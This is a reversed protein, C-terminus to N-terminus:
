SYAISDLSCFFFFHTLSFFSLSFFFPGGGWGQVERKSVDCMQLALVSLTSSKGTGSQAQAIVDRKNLVPVIARQQIASPREFGAAYMGKLLEPKLGMEEFTEFVEVRQTEETKKEKKRTDKRSSSSSVTSSGKKGGGVDDDDRTDRGRRM